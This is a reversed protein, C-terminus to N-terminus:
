SIMALVWDQNYNIIFLVNLQFADYASTDQTETSLKACTWEIHNAAAWLGGPPETKM